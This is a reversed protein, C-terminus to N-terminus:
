GIQGARIGALLARWAAASLSLVLGGRDRTDRVAVGHGAPAARGARGARGVEVCNAQSGSYSSKRWAQDTM